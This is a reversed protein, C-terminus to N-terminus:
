FIISASVLSKCLGIWWSWSYFLPHPSCNLLAVLKWYGPSPPSSLCIFNLIGSTLARHKYLVFSFVGLPTSYYLSCEANMPYQTRWLDECITHPFGNGYVQSANNNAPSESYHVQASVITLFCWCLSWMGLRSPILDWAVQSPFLAAPQPGVAQASKKGTPLSNETHDWSLHPWQERREGCVSQLIALPLTPLTLM